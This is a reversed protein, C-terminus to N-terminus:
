YLNSIVSFSSATRLESVDSCILHVVSQLFWFVATGTVQIQRILSFSKQTCCSTSVLIKAHINFTVVHSLPLPKSSYQKQFSWFSSLSM